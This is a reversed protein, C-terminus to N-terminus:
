RGNQAARPARGEEEPLAGGVLPVFRVDGLVGPAAGRAGACACCCRTAASPASRCWWSAATPWSTSCPRRCAPPPPPSSSATSRRRSRGARRRRRAPTINHLRLEEFRAEAEELLPAHREITYVRRCLRALVATQYGSGTGIELVKHPARAGAGPDDAGRGAAPQHDPGPRDAAGPERLGSRPFRGARLARAARARHAALVRTDTIGARRLSM